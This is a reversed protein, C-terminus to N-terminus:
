ATKRAGVGDPRARLGRHACSETVATAYAQLTQDCLRKVSYRREVEERARRAMARAADRDALVRRLAGALAAPDGPPVIFGTVGDEIIGRAGGIDSSIVPVGLAMAEKLSASSADCGVSPLVAVDFAAEVEAIDARFGLFRVVGDLGLERTERRLAEENPGAGAFLLALAPMSSRLAAAARLLYTHGKDLVLRGAVGVVLADDPLGLERRVRGGDVGEHFLDARYASPIVSIRAPDLTGDQIFRGYLPRVSEDVIILHDVLRGYLMRNPRGTRVRKTNHRTLV